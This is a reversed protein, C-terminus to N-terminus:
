FMSDEIRGLIGIWNSVRIRMFVACELDKEDYLERAYATPVVPFNFLRTSCGFFM